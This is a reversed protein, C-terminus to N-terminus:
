NWNRTQLPVRYMKCSISCISNYALSTRRYPHVPYHKKSDPRIGSKGSLQFFEPRIGSIKTYLAWAKKEPQISTSSLFIPTNVMNQSSIIPFFGFTKKELLGFISLTYPQFIVLTRYDFNKNFVLKKQLNVYKTQKLLYNVIVLLVSVTFWSM